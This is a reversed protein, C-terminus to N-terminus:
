FVVILLIFGGVSIFSNLLISILLIIYFIPSLMAVVSGIGGTLDLLSFLTKIDFKLMGKLERLSKLLGKKEAKINKDEIFLNKKSSSIKNPMDIVDFITFYSILLVITPAALLISIITFLAIHIGSNLKIYILIWSASLGGLILWFLIYKNIIKGIESLRTFFEKARLIAEEKTLAENTM